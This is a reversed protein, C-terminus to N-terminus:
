ISVCGHYRGPILEYVQINTLYFKSSTYSQIVLAKVMNFFSVLDTKEEKKALLEEVIKKRMEDKCDVFEEGFSSKCFQKFESMGNIFTTQEEKTRCDDVMKLVFLHADIDKAGPTDSKPLITECLESLMVEDSPTITIKKLLLASKSRDQMCSPIIAFGATVFAFQKLVDRRNVNGM